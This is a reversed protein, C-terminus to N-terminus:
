QDIERFAGARGYRHRAEDVLDLPEAHHRCAKMDEIVVVDFIERREVGWFALLYDFGEYGADATDIEDYEVVDHAQDAAVHLVLFAPPLYQRPHLREGLAVDSLHPDVVGPVVFVQPSIGLVPAGHDGGHM